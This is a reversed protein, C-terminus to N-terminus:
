RLSYLEMFHKQGLSYDFQNTALTQTEGTSLKFKIIRLKIEEGDQRLKFNHCGLSLADIDCNFKSKVRMIFSISLSLCLQFLEFSPYGRDFIVLDKFDPFANKLFELHLAALSREGNAMPGLRADLIIGNLIDFLTSAQATVASESGGSTGFL